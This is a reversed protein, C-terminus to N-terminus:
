NFVESQLFDDQLKKVQREKTVYPIGRNFQAWTLYRHVVGQEDIGLEGTLGDLRYEPFAKLISVQSILQYSDYGLAYFRGRPGILEPQIAVLNQRAQQFNPLESLLLPIYPFEIGNLDIDTQPNKKGSFISSTAIVPLDHAYYYDIFPKLSRGMAPTALVFIFDADQRRRPSFELNRGLLQQLQDKRNNSRNVGLLQQVNHKLQKASQYKEVDILEGGLQEFYQKFALQAREGLSNDPIFAVAKRYGQEFARHAAQIAEDEPALGFQYLEPHVYNQQDLRNLALIPTVLQEQDAIQEISDKTLPGLIFEAGEDIAQQYPQKATLVNGTDYFRLEASALDSNSKFHAALIGDRILNAAQANKGTTPLLIAIKSPRYAKAAAARQITTPQNVLSPHLPYRQKWQELEVILRQPNYGWRKNIFVIELWGNMRESNFGSNLQQLMESSLQNLSYWIKENNNHLVSSDDIIDELEVRVQASEFYNANALYSDALSQKYRLQWAIPHAQATKITLLQQLSAQHANLALLTEGYYLRFDDMQLPTLQAQNVRILLEQAKPFRQESVLIGAAQVLLGSKKSADAQKIQLLLQNLDLRNNSTNQSTRNSSTCAQLLVGILVFVLLKNSQIVFKNMIKIL